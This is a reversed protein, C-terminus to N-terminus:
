AFLSEIDEDTIEVSRTKEAVEVYQSSDWIAIIQRSKDIYLIGEKGTEPFDSGICIYNSPDSTVSKWNGNSYTWLIASSDVFYFKGEIPALISTRDAETKLTIIDTYITRKDDYDFAITAKDRVFILQGNVVSITSVKSDTTAIVSFAHMTDAM